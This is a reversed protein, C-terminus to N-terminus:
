NPFRSYEQGPHHREARIHHGVQVIRVPLFQLQRLKPAADLVALRQLQGLVTGFRRRVAVAQLLDERNGRRLLATESRGHAGHRSGSAPYRKIGTKHARELGEPGESLSEEVKGVPIGRGELLPEM